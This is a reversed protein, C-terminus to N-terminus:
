IQSQGRTVSRLPRDISSIAAKKENKEEGTDAPFYIRLKAHVHIATVATVRGKVWEGLM